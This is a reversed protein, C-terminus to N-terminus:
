LTIFTQFQKALEKRQLKDPTNSITLWSDEQGAPKQSVVKGMCCTHILSMYVSKLLLAFHLEFPLDAVLVNYWANCFWIYIIQIINVGNPTELLM